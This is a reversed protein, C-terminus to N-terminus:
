EGEEREKGKENSCVLFSVLWHLSQVTCAEETAPCYFAVKLLVLRLSYFPCMELALRKRKNRLQEMDGDKNENLADKHVQPNFRATKWTSLSVCSNQHFCNSLPFWTLASSVLWISNRICESARMAANRQSRGWRGGDGGGSASETVGSESGLDWCRLEASEAKWWFWERVNRRM